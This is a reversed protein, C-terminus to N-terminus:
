AAAGDVSFTFSPTTGSITGRLRYTGGGHPANSVQGGGTFTVVGYNSHSTPESMTVPTTLRDDATPLGCGPGVALTRTGPGTIPNGVLVDQYSGNFWQVIPVLVPNVGSVATVNIRFFAGSAALTIDASNGAGTWAQSASISSPTNM